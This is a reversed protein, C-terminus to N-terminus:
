RGLIRLPIRLLKLRKPTRGLPELEAFPERSKTGLLVLLVWGAEILLRSETLSQAAIVLFGFLPYLYLPNTHRVAVAWLRAFVSIMLWILLALGLIGLQMWIDLYANHAQYMPVGNIEVLGEYPETGPIWYGIWGWGELPKEWILGLVRDWIHFRGTADPSRGLLDFVVDRFVVGLVIALALVLGAFRYIRHRTPKPRGESLIAVTAAFAILGMAVTMGASQALFAIAIALTLSFAPLWKSRDTVILEILFLLAGLVATFALLNANGMIGQIRELEFLNGQVWLYSAHPPESGEYNPFLPAIPGTIAAYLEILLSSALLFRLTNSLIHLLQRWSFQNALFIAFLTATIQLGLTLLTVERYQSWILSLLMLAMLSLLPIPIRALTKTPSKLGLAIVTWVALAIVVLSWGLWGISYRIADPALVTFLGIYALAAAAKYKKSTRDFPIRIPQTIPISSTISKASM